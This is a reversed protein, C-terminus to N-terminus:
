KSRYNKIHVVNIVIIFRTVVAREEEGKVKETLFVM